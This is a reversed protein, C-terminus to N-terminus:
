RVIHKETIIRVSFERRFTGIGATYVVEIPVTMGGDIREYNNGLSFPHMESGEIRVRYSLATTGFNTVNRVITFNDGEAIKGINVDSVDDILLQEKYAIFSFPFECIRPPQISETTIKFVDSIKQDQTPSM